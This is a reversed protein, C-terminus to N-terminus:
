VLMRKQIDKRPAYYFSSNRNYRLTQAMCATLNERAGPPMGQRPDFQTLGINTGRSGTPLGNSIWNPMPSQTNAVYKVSMVKLFGEEM